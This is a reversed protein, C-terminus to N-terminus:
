SMPSGGRTGRHRRRVKPMMAVRVGFLADFPGAFRDVEDREVGALRPAAEAPRGLAFPAAEPRLGEIVWWSGILQTKVM